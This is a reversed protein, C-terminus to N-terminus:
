KVAKEIIKLNDTMITEYANKEAAGSTVPNLVFVKIGTEQSLVGVASGEYQPETFLACVNDKRIEDCLRALEGASPEGGHDSEICDVIELGLDAALYEYAAHFTVIKKGTVKKSVRTIEYELKELRELYMSCNDELESEYGPFSKILGNKINVIQKKANEVSMWIHSNGNHEHNHSADDSHEEHEHVENCITEIGESSDIVSIAEVSEYMDEIFGEMGAGNIVFVDADNLLKADRATITYDHLCGENQEAMCRVSLGDIGEVLNLTFIYVPYFSTAIVKDGSQQEATCGSLCLLTFALVICIFKRM